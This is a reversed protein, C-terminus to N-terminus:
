GGAGLEDLAGRWAATDDPCLYTTGELMLALAQDKEAPDEWRALLPSGRVYALAAGASLVHGNLIATECADLTLALWFAEEEATLPAEGREDLAGVFARQEPTEARPPGDELFRRQAIFFAEREAFRADLDEAAPAQAPPSAAPPPAATQSAAPPAQAGAACGSSLALTLAVLAALALPRSRSAPPRTSMRAVSPARPVRTRAPARLM